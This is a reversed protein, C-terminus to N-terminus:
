RSCFALSVLAFLLAIVNGLLMLRLTIKVVSKKEPALKLLEAGAVAGFTGALAFVLTLVVYSVFEHVSPM